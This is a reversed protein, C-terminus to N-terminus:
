LILVPIARQLGSMVTERALEMEEKAPVSGKYMHKMGLQVAKGEGLSHYAQMHIERISAIENAVNVIGTYHSYKMNIGPILPCRLVIDAGADAAAALNDLVTQREGGTYFLHAKPDTLKYDFYLLDTYALISLLDGRAGFGSTEVCTHIGAHKAGKLLMRSFRAQMLPEGGSLTMGGGSATYFDRDRLVQELVEEVGMETGALRLAEGPCDRVCVGCSICQKRSFIHVGDAMSHCGYACAEVCNGCGICMKESYLIQAKGEWGEPNHCWICRLPCGKLFVVTRVGPGDFLSFRQVNWVNGKM